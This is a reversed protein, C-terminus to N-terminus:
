ESSSSLSDLYNDDGFLLPNSVGIWEEFQAANNVDSFLSVHGRAIFHDQDVESESDMFKVHKPDLKALMMQAGRKFREPPTITWPGLKM